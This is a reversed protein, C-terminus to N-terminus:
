HQCDLPRFVFGLGGKRGGAGLGWSWGEAWCGGKDNTGLKKCEATMDATKGM